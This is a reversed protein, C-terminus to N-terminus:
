KVFEASKGDYWYVEGSETGVLYGRDGFFSSELVMIGTIKNTGHPISVSKFYCKETGNTFGYGSAHQSRHWNRIQMKLQTAKIAKMDSRSYPLFCFAAVVLGFLLLMLVYRM